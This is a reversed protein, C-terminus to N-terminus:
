GTRGEEIERIKEKVKEFSDNVIEYTLTKNLKRRAVGCYALFEAHSLTELIALWKDFDTLGDFGGRSWTVHRAIGPITKEERMGDMVEQLRKEHHKFLFSVRERIGTFADGHSPLLLKPSLRETKKLSKLFELLPNYNEAPYYAVNSTEGPLIHDGSILVDKEENFLCVHGPTHGPTHVIRWVGSSSSIVDGDSITKVNKPYIEIERRIVKYVKDAVKEPLQLFNVMNNGKDLYLEEIVKAIIREREHLMIDASLKGALMNASGYHDYHLHTIIIQNVKVGKGYISQIADIIEDASSFFGTDVLTVSRDDKEILYLNVHGIDGIPGKLRIRYVGEAERTVSAM